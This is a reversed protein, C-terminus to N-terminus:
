RLHRSYQNFYSSTMRSILQRAPSQERINRDWTKWYHRGPKTWSSSRPAHAPEHRTQMLTISEYSRGGDDRFARSSFSQTRTASSFDTQAHFLIQPSSSKDEAIIPNASTGLALRINVGFSNEADRARTRICSAPAPSPTHCNIFAPPPFKKASGRRGAPIAQSPGTRHARSGLHFSQAQACVRLLHSPM